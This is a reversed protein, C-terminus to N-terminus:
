KRRHVPHNRAERPTCYVHQAMPKRRQLAATSPPEQHLLQSQIQMRLQRSIWVRKKRSYHDTSAQVRGLQWAISMMCCYIMERAYMYARACYSAISDFQIRYLIICYLVGANSLYRLPSHAIREHPKQPSAARIRQALGVLFALSIWSQRIQDLVAWVCRRHWRPWQRATGSVCKLFLGHATRSDRLQGAV